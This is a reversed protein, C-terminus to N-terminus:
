LRYGELFQRHGHSQAALSSTVRCRRLFGGHSHSKKTTYLSYYPLGCRCGSYVLDCDGTVARLVTSIPTDAGQHRPSLSHSGQHM